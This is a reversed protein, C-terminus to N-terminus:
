EDDSVSAIKNNQYHDNKNSYPSIDNRSQNANEQYNTVTLIKWMGKSLKYTKKQFIYKSRSGM